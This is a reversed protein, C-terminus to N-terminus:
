AGTPTSRCPMACCVRPPWPRHPRRASACPRAGKPRWSSHRTGWRCPTACCRGRPPHHSNRAMAHQKTMPIPCKANPAVHRTLSQRSAFRRNWIQCSVAIKEASGTPHVVSLANLDGRQAATHVERQDDAIGVHQRHKGCASERVRGPEVARPARHGLREFHKAPRQWHSYKGIEALVQEGPDGDRQRWLSSHTSAHSLASPMASPETMLSTPRAPTSANITPQRMTRALGHSQTQFRGDISWRDRM